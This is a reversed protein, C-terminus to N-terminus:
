DSCAQRAFERFDSSLAGVNFVRLGAAESDGYIACIGNRFREWEADGIVGYKNSYYAKELNRAMIQVYLGLQDRDVESIENTKRERFTRWLETLEPDGLRRSELENISDVLGGYVAARTTSTNDRIGIILFALTVVVAIGGVIEAVLAWKELKM